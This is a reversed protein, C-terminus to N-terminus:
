HVLQGFQDNRRPCNELPKVILTTEPNFDLPMLATLRKEEARHDCLPYPSAEYLVGCHNAGYADVLRDVLFKHGPPVENKKPLTLIGAVSVQWLILLSFPDWIRERYIFDTAEFSQCGTTGPDIGLDAFICDEASIGPLMVAGYGEERAIRIATHTPYAFVGPHGYAAFCVDKGGRVQELVIDVMEAYTDPRLKGPAYCGHLSRVNPNLGEIIEQSVPNSTLSFVVDAGSIVKQSDLTMHGLNIGLGVVILSGRLGEDSSEIVEEGNVMSRM